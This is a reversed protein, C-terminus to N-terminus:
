RQQGGFLAVLRNRVRRIPGEARVGDRESQHKGREAITAEIERQRADVLADYDPGGIRPRGASM